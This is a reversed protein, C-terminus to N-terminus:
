KPNSLAGVTRVDRAAAYFHQIESWFQQIFLREQRSLGEHAKIARQLLNMFRQRTTENLTVSKTGSKQVSTVNVIQGLIGMNEQIFNACVPLDAQAVTAYLVDANQSKEKSFIRDLQSLTNVTNVPKLSMNHSYM